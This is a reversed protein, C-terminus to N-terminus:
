VKLSLLPANRFASFYYQNKPYEDFFRLLIVEGTDKPSSGPKAWSMKIIESQEPTLNILKPIPVEDKSKFLSMAVGM